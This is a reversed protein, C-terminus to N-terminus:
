LIKDKFESPNFRADWGWQFLSQSLKKYDSYYEEKWNSANYRLIGHMRCVFSWYRGIQRSDDETRRGSCFRCYWQFWGRPDQPHIADLDDWDKQSLGADAEYMNIGVDSIQNAYKKESVGRFVSDSIGDMWNPDNFYIGGFVGGILMERPSFCTAFDKCDEFIYFNRTRRTHMGYAVEFKSVKEM